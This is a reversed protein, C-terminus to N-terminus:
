ATEDEFVYSYIDDRRIRRGLKVSFYRCLKEEIDFRTGDVKGNVYRSLTGEGIGAEDAIQKQLLPQGQVKSVEEILEPLHNAM